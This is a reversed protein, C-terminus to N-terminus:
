SSFCFFLDPIMGMHGYLTEAVTNSYTEKKKARSRFCLSSANAPTKRQKDEPFRPHQADHLFFAM